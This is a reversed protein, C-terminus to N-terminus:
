TPRGFIRRSIWGAQGVREGEGLALRSLAREHSQSLADLEDLGCYGFQHRLDAIIRAVSAVEAPTTASLAGLRATAACLDDFVEVQRLGIETSPDSRLGERRAGINFFTAILTSIRDCGSMVESPLVLQSDSISVHM